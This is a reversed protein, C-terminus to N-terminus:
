LWSSPATVALSKMTPMTLAATNPRTIAAIPQSRPNDVPAPAVDTPRDAVLATTVLMTM